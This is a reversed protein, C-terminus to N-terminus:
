SITSDLDTYDSLTVRSFREDMTPGFWPNSVVLYLQTYSLPPKDRTIDWRNGSLERGNSSSAVVRVGDVRLLDAVRRLEPSPRTQVPPKAAVPAPAPAPASKAATAKPAAKAAAKTAGAKSSSTKASSAM